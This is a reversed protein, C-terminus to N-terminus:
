SKAKRTGAAKLAIESATGMLQKTYSAKQGSTPLAAHAKVAAAIEAKTFAKGTAPNKRGALRRALPQSGQAPTYTPIPM